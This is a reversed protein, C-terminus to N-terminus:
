FRTHRITNIRANRLGDSVGGNKKYRVGHRNKISCRASGSNCRHFFNLLRRRLWCDASNKYFGFVCVKYFRREARYFLKNIGRRAGGSTVLLVALGADKYWVWFVYGYNLLQWRSTYQQDGPRGFVWVAGDGCDMFNFVFYGGGAPNM